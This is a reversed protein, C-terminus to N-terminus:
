RAAVNRLGGGGGGGGSGAGGGGARSSAPAALQVGSSSGVAVDAVPTAAPRGLGGGGNSTLLRTPNTVTPVSATSAAGLMPVSGGGSALIDWARQQRKAVYDPNREVVVAAAVAIMTIVALAPLSIICGGQM